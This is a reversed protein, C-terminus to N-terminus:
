TLFRGPECLRLECFRDTMTLWMFFSGYYWLVLTREVTLRMSCCVSTRGDADFLKELVLLPSLLDFDPPKKCGIPVEGAFWLLFPEAAPLVRIGLTRRFCSASLWINRSFFLVSAGLSIATFCVRILEKRWTCFVRELHVFDLLEGDLPM